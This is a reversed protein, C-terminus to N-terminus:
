AVDRQLKEYEENYIKIVDDDTLSSDFRHMIRIILVADPRKMYAELKRAEINKQLASIDKILKVKETVLLKTAHLDKLCQMLHYQLSEDISDFDELEKEEQNESQETSKNRKKGKDARPKRNLKVRGGIINYVQFYSCGTEKMIESIFMGKKWNPNKAALENYLKLIKQRLGINTKM